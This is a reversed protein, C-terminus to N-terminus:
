SSWYTESRPSSTFATGECGPCDYDHTVGYPSGDPGIAQGRVTHVVMPQTLPHAPLRDTLDNILARVEDMSLRVVTADGDEGEAFIRVDGFPTTNLNLLGGKALRINTAM